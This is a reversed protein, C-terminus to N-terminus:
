LEAEPEPAPEAEPGLAKFLADLVSGTRRVPSPTDPHADKWAKKADYSRPDPYAAHHAAVEAELVPDPKGPDFLDFVRLPGAAAEAEPGEPQTTM